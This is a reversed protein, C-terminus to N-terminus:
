WAKVVLVDCPPDNLFTEAISGLVANSLGTRGHTGLTVLDAERIDVWHRLVAATEGIEVHMAINPGVGAANLSADVLASMEGEIIRTLSGQHEARITRKDHDGSLFGGFPQNYAHVAHLEANPAITLAGRIAVRSYVSFDVGVVAKTYPGDVRNPVVLVPHAGYRIVRELGTGSFPNRFSENRHTGMVILNAGCSDAMNLISDYNQGAVCVVDIKLDDGAGLTTLSKKIEAEASILVKAQIDDQLQEDVVHLVHLVANHQRAILIARALCRDGRASLDTAALIDTIPTDPSLVTPATM